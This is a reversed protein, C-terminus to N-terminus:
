SCSAGERLRELVALVGDVDGAPLRLEECVVEAIARNEIADDGVLLGCMALDTITIPGIV